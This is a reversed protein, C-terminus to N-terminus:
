IHDPFLYQNCSPRSKESGVKALPQEFLAIFHNAEVIIKCSLFLVNNVEKVIGKELQDPM